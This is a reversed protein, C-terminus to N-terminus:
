HATIGSLSQQIKAWSEEGYSEIYRRRIQAVRLTLAELYIRMGIHQRVMLAREDFALGEWSPYHPRMFSTLRTFRGELEAHELLVRHEHHPLGAAPFEPPQTFTSSQNM